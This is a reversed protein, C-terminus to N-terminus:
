RLLEVSQSLSDPLKAWARDATLAVESLRQALALCARDGLSLGLAKTDPRLLATLVADDTTFDEVRLPLDNVLVDLDEATAGRHALVTMVEALNVSSIVGDALSHMARETGPEDLVLALLVSADYVM